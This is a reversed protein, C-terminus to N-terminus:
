YYLGDKDVLVKNSGIWQETRDWKDRTGARLSRDASKLWQYGIPGNPFGTPNDKYGAESRPGPGGVYTTTKTLVPAYDDWSAIGQMIGTAYYQANSGLTDFNAETKDDEWVAIEKMDAESLAKAGGSAFSPHEILPRGVVTWDIEYVTGAVTGEDIGFDGGDESLEYEVAVTMEAMAPYTGEISRISIDSILGYYEGWPNGRLCESTLTAFLTSYPGVYDIDTRVSKDSVRYEPHKLKKYTIISEDAM